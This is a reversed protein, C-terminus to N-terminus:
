HLLRNNLLSACAVQQHKDGVQGVSVLDVGSREEDGAEGESSSLTEFDFQSESENKFSTRKSNWM